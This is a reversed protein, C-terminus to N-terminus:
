GHALDTITMKSNDYNRSAPHGNLFWDVLYLASGRTTRPMNSKQRRRIYPITITSADMYRTFVPLSLNVANETNTISAM